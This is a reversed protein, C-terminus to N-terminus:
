GLMRPPRAIVITVTKARAAMTRSRGLKTGRDVARFRWIRRADEVAVQGPKLAVSTQAIPSIRYPGDALARKRAAEKFPDVGHNNPLECVTAYRRFTEALSQPPLYERRVHVAPATGKPFPWM